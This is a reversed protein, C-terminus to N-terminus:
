TPQARGWSNVTSTTPQGHHMKDVAVASLLSEVSAILAITVVGLVVATWNGDPLEPPCGRWAPFRRLQDPGRQLAPLAGHRRHSCRPARSDGSLRPFTSGGLLLAIVLASYRRPSTPPSFAPRSPRSTRWAESASKAGLVVHIQQLVITIGIGALMAHVVVPAIALAVRGGQGHGAPGPVRRGRRHHRLDVPWGFQEILGAVIVTLGAAPGSVQLPSGGLSGAVIGGVAAAILGAM